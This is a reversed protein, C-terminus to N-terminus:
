AGNGNVPTHGATAIGGEYPRGGPRLATHERTSRSLPYFM